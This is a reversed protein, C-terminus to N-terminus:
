FRARAFTRRACPAATRHAALRLNPDADQAARRAESAAANLQQLAAGMQQWASSLGEPGLVLLTRHAFGPPLAAVEGSPGWRWAGSSANFYSVAAAFNTLPSLALAALRPDEYLVFPGGGCGASPPLGGESSWSWM